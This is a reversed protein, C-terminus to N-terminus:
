RIGQTTYVIDVKWLIITGLASMLGGPNEIGFLIYQSPNTGNPPYIYTKPLLGTADFTFDVINTTANATFNVPVQMYHTNYYFSGRSISNWALTQVQKYTEASGYQLAARFWLSKISILDSPLSIQMSPGYGCAQVNAISVSKYQYTYEQKRSEGGM